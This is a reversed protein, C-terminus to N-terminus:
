EGKEPGNKSNKHKVEGKDFEAKTCGYVAQYAGDLTVDVSYLRVGKYDVYANRSCGRAHELAAVILDLSNGFLLDARRSTERVRQYGEYDFSYLDYASEKIKQIRASKSFFDIFGKKFEKFKKKIEM